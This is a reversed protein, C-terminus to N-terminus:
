FTASCFGHLYRPSSLSKGNTARSFKSQALKSPRSTGRCPVFASGCNRASCRMRRSSVLTVHNYRRPWCVSSGVWPPTLKTSTTGRHRIAADHMSGLYVRTCKVHSIAKILLIFLVVTPVQVVLPVDPNPLINDNDIFAHTDGDTARSVLTDRYFLRSPVVLLDPHSRYNDVLQVCYQPDYVNKVFYPPATMLRELLSLALGHKVAESHHIIPGLQFPDGALILRPNHNAM